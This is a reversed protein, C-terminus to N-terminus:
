RWAFMAGVSGGVNTWYQRRAIERATDPEIRGTDHQCAVQQADVQANVAIASIPGLVYTFTARLLGAAGVGQCSPLLQKNDPHTYSAVLTQDLNASDDGRGFRGGEVLGGFGLGFALSIHETAHWTPDLTGLFRLGNLSTNTTDDSAGAYTWSTLLSWSRDLRAGVRVVAAHTIGGPAGSLGRAVGYSYGLYLRFGRLQWAERDAMTPLSLKFPLEDDTETAASAPVVHQAAVREGRAVGGGKPTSAGAACPLALSGVAAVLAAALLSRLSM